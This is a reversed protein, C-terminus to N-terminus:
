GALLDEVGVPAAVGDEHPDPGPDLAVALDGGAVELREEVPAPVPRVADRAGVVGPRKLGDGVLDGGVLELPCPQPGVLRRAARLAPVARRLGAEPDLNLHVLEGLVEPEVRDRDPEPVGGLRERPRHVMEPDGAVAQPFADRPHRLRAAEPLLVATQRRAAAHTERDAGVQAARSEGDIPVVHGVALHLDADVPSAADDDGAARDVDALAAVRHQGPDDGLDQPEIRVLDAQHGGVGIEGRDIEPRVAAPHREHRAVGGHLRRLLHPVEEHGRGGLMQLDLGVVEAHTVVADMGGGVRRAPHREGLRGRQGLPHKPRQGGDPRVPRRFQGAGVLSGANPWRRRVREGGRHDLDPHVLPGPIDRGLPDPDGVVDAAGDVLGQDDALDFAADVHREALGQHLLLGKPLPQM